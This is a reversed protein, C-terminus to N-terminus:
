YLVGDNSRRISRLILGKRALSGPSPTAESQVHRGRGYPQMDERSPRCARSSAAAVLSGPLARLLAPPLNLPPCSLITWMPDVMRETEAEWRDRDFDGISTDEM